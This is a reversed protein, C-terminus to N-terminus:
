KEARGELAFIGMLMGNQLVESQEERLTLSRNERGSLLASSICDQM